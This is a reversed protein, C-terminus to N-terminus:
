SSCFCERLGSSFRNWPRQRRVIGVDLPEIPRETMFNQVSVHEFRQALYALDRRLPQRFVIFLSRVVAQASDRRCHEPSLDFTGVNAVDPHHLYIPVFAAGFRLGVIAVSLGSDRNVKKPPQRV